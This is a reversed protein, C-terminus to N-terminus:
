NERIHLWLFTWQEISKIYTILEDYSDDNKINYV